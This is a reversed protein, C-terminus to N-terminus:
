LLFKREWLKFSMYTWLPRTNNQKGKLHAVYMQEIYAKNFIGSDPSNKDHLVDLFKERLENKLWVDIPISFGMKKRNIINGPLIKDASKKLIYKSVRNKLKLKSPIQAVMEVFKHDLIPVRVELSNAMSARDVKTLIDESLYTKFDIYQIKTLPDSSACDNYHKQFVDISDYGALEKIFDQTFLNSKADPLFFSMSNFYGHVPDNSLNTLLTKGRMVQPLWPGQPYISAIKGIVQKKIQGPIINRLKNELLDFYYRRYGAFNEDGGDGSLAVTVNERAMKSVYYTPISSSDAMPEDFHWSLKDIVNLADPNVTFENHSTNFIQATERAYELENYKDVSFGISNTIVSDDMLEAMLGVILSSDIGGSLFAGLSVDSILRLRVSERLVEIIKECWQSETLRLDPCFELDWYKQVRKQKNQLVLFHGAPLKSINQFISKPTPVYGISFYDSLAQNNMKRNITRDEIIAKIESAFYFRNEDFYYYLPKIGLRDRALFLLNKKEDWLAFSFMGQFKELCEFGWEEYGHVIIETDTKTSFKHGKSILIKRIEEFNYIEGNFVVVVSKDENYIPQQGTNLDIISLRRHGLGLNNKIHYGSDDPGRHSLTDNMRVLLDKDVPRGDINYIGSIGCM